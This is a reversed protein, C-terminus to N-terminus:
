PIPARGTGPGTKEDLAFVAYHHSSSFSDINYFIYIIALRQFPYKENRYFPIQGSSYHQTFTELPEIFATKTKLKVEGNSLVVIEYSIGDKVSTATPQTTSKGGGRFVSAGCILGILLAIVLLFVMM